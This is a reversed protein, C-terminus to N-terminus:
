PKLKRTAREQLWVIDRNRPSAVVDPILGGRIIPPMTRPDIWRKIESHGDCFSLGGARNHYSAPFDYFGTQAWKDPWEKVRSFRRHTCLVSQVLDAFWGTVM